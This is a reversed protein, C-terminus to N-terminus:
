FFSKRDRKICWESNFAVKFKTNLTQKKGDQNDFFM